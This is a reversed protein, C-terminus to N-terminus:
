WRLLGTSAVGAVPTNAPSAREVPDNGPRAQHHLVLAARWADARDHLLTLAQALHSAQVRSRVGLRM